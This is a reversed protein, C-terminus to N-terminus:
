PTDSLTGSCHVHSGHLLCQEGRPGYVYAEDKWWDGGGRELGGGGLAVGGGRGRGRWPDDYIALVTGDACSFSTDLRVCPVALLLAVAALSRM